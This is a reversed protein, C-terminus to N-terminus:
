ICRENRADSKKMRDTQRIKAHSRYHSTVPVQEALLCHLPCSEFLLLFSPTGSTPPSLLVQLPRNILTLLTGLPTRLHPTPAIVICRALSPLTAVLVLRCPYPLSSSAAHILCRPRPLSSSAALIPCRVAALITRRTQCIVSHKCVSPCYLCVTCANFWEAIVCFSLLWCDPYHLLSLCCYLWLALCLFNVLVLQFIHVFSLCKHYPMM